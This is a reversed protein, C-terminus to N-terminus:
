HADRCPEVQVPAAVPFREGRRYADAHAALYTWSTANRADLLCGPAARFSPLREAIIARLPGPLDDFGDVREGIATYVLAGAREGQQMWPLWPGIRHWSLTMSSVAARRPDAVDAAPATLAFLEIAQYTPAPSLERLAPDAALPNPYAVDVEILFTADSGRQVLPPAGDLRAQVPSNAVHVVPVEVGTWPNRWRDLVAGTEPDLYLMLERSTLYWGDADRGCRAVNMGVIGFLRRPAEGPMYIHVSGQWTTFVDSGDTACRVRVLEDTGPPSSRPPSAGGRVCGSLTAVALLVASRRNM